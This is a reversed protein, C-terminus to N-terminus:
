FMGARAERMIEEDTHAETLRVAIEETDREFLGFWPCRGSSNWQPYSPNTRRFCGLFCRDTSFGFALNSESITGLLYAVCSVFVFSISFTQPWGRLKSKM